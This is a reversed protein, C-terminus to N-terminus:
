LFCATKMIFTRRLRQAYCQLSCCLVAPFSFSVLSQLSLIVPTMSCFSCSKTHGGLRKEATYFMISTKLAAFSKNEKPQITVLYITFYLYLYLTAWFHLSSDRIMM